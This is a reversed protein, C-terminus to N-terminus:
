GDGEDTAGGAFAHWVCSKLVCACVCTHACVCVFVCVCVCVCVYVCMCMWVHLHTGLFSENRERVRKRKKGRGRGKGGREEGESVRGSGERRQRVDGSLFMRLGSWYDDSHASGDLVSQLQERAAEVMELM